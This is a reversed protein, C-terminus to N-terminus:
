ILKRIDNITVAAVEDMMSGKKELLRKVGYDITDVALLNYVTVPNQQGVRHARAVRQEFRAQSWPLDVNIVYHADQCQLGESMADTGLLIGGKSRWDALIDDRHQSEGTIVHQCKFQRQLYKITEAYMSFIIAKEDGLSELLAALAAAKSSTNDGFTFLGNAVQRLRGVKVLANAVTLVEEGDLELRLEDRVQNYAKTEKASLTVPVDVVTVPPLNKQVEHKDVTFIHNKIKEKIVDVERWGKIMPLNPVPMIAHRARFAYWNGYLAGPSIAEVQPWLDMWGNVLPTGTLLLRVPSQVIFKRVLKSIKSTPSKIKHAEDLVVADWKRKMIHAYEKRFMEYGIVYWGGYKEMNDLALQRKKATGEIRIPVTTDWKRAEDEWVGLLTAPVIFLVHQKARLYQLAVLTKGAGPCLGLLQRGSSQHLRALAQEQHPM